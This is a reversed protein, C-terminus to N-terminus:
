SFIMKIDSFLQKTRRLCQHLPGFTWLNDCNFLAANYFIMKVTIVLSLNIDFRM